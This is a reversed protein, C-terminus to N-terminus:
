LSFTVSTKAFATKVKQRCIYRAPMAGEGLYTGPRERSSIWRRDPVEKGQYLVVAMHGIARFSILAHLSKNPIAASVGVLGSHCQM